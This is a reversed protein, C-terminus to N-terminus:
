YRALEILQWLLAVVGWGAALAGLALPAHRWPALAILPTAPLPRRAATGPFPILVGMSRRLARPRAGGTARAVALPRIKETQSRRSM